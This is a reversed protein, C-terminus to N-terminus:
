RTALEHTQVARLERWLWVLSGWIPVYRQAWENCDRYCEKYEDWM